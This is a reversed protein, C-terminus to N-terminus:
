KNKYVCIPLDVCFMHGKPCVCKIPKFFRSYMKKWGSKTLITIRVNDNFVGFQDLEKKTLLGNKYMKHVNDYLVTKSDVSTRPDYSKYQSHMEILWRFDGIDIKKKRWANIIWQANLKNNPDYVADRHIFCGGPVLLDSIRKLLVPIDKKDLMNVAVDGTIIDYHDKIPIKQWFSVVFKEKSKTKRLPTLAKIMEINFDAVTVDFKLSAALDRLEPTAGLILLKTKGTKSKYQNFLKRYVMIDEKAPRAPPLTKAWRAAFAQFPKKNIVKKSKAM